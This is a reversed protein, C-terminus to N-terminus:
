AGAPVWGDTGDRLVRSGGCGGAGAAARACGAPGAAAGALVPLGREAGAARACRAPEAQPGENEGPKPRYKAAGPRRSPRLPHESARPAGSPCVPLGERRM